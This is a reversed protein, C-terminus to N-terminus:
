VTKRKKKRLKMKAFKRLDQYKDDEDMIESRIIEELVDELSLVGVFGGFENTVMFLHHRTRLFAEFVTGLLKSENVFFVETDAIKGVSKGMSREGLLQPLHLIGIINDTKETYIPIRSYGTERITNLLDNTIKQSSEMTFVVSRPTMVDKVKKDSFTLAGKVIREEEVKVDSEKSEEHEEIIKMLEQKSYITALEEGLTRNLVWAIPWCVPFLVLIFIKVLWATRAGLMLAFRSFVAQPAIEGFIVILSTSILGAMLGSAISGLFIAIAANVAVNGVLLTCLLLNGRKRVEYVKAADKDGLSMKRKLAQTNLSMLGLTLGSFLGSFAILIFVILYDM